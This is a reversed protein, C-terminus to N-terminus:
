RRAIPGRQTVRKWLQVLADGHERTAWYIFGGAGGCAAVQLVDVWNEYM